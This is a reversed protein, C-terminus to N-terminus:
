RLLLGILSHFGTRLAVGLPKKKLEQPIRLSKGVRIWEEIEYLRGSECLRLLHKADDPQLVHNM